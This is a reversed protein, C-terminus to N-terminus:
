CKDNLIYKIIFVNKMFKVKHWSETQSQVGFGLKAEFGSSKKVLAKYHSVSVTDGIM